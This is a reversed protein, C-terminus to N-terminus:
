NDGWCNVRGNSRIACSHESGVCVDIAGRPPTSAPTPAPAPVEEVAPAPPAPPAPCATALGLALLPAFTRPQRGLDGNSASDGCAALLNCSVSLRVPARM